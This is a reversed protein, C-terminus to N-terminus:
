LPFPSLEGSLGLMNGGKGGGGMSDLENILRVALTRDQYKKLFKVLVDVYRKKAEM